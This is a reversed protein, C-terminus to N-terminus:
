LTSLRFRQGAVDGCFSNYPEAQTVMLKVSQYITKFEAIPLIYIQKDQISTIEGTVSDIKPRREVEGFVFTLEVEEPEKSVCGLIDGPHHSSSLGPTRDRRKVMKFKGVGQVM